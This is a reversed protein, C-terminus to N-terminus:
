TAIREENILLLNDIVKQEMIRCELRSVQLLGKMNQGINENNSM